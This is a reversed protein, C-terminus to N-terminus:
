AELPTARPCTGPPTEAWELEVPVEQCPFVICAPPELEGTSLAGKWAQVGAWPAISFVCPLTKGSDWWRESRAQEGEQGLGDGRWGLLGSLFRGGQPPDQFYAQGWIPLPWPVYLYIVTYTNYLHIHIYTYIYM